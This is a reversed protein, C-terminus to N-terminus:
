DTETEKTNVHSNIPLTINSFHVGSDHWADKLHTFVSAITETNDGNSKEITVEVIDGPEQTINCNNSTYNISWIM